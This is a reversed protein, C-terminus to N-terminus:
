HASSSSAATTTTAVICAIMALEQAIITTIISNIAAGGAVDVKSYEKMVICAALVRRLKKGIALNGLGRVKSLYAEVEKMEDIAKKIDSGQVVYSIVGEVALSYGDFRFKEEKLIKHVNYAADAKEQAEGDFVSLLCALFQVNNKSFYHPKLCRFIDECHRAIEAPQRGCCAMSVCSPIDESSTLMPHDKKIKKYLERTRKVAGAYEKPECYEFINVAAVVLYDSNLFLNDLMKHIKKIQEFAYEPDDSKAVAAMVVQRANGHGLTSLLHTNKNIIEKAEKFRIPDTPVDGNLVIASTCAPLNGDLKYTNKAVKFNQIFVDCSNKISTKM